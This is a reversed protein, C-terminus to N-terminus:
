GADDREPGKGDYCDKCRAARDPLIPFPATPLAQYWYATSCWDDSREYIVGDAGPEAGAAHYSRWESAPVNERLESESGYGIQQISVAVRRQFYIPDRHHLRYIGYFGRKGDSLTVGQCPTQDMSLGWACGIYDETGTGCITPHEGDDDIFFKVEGEGWWGGRDCTRVGLMTGLYVGRGEVGDLITYDTFRPCPNARRWQAHLYGTNQDLTDGQTFDVQYFLMRVQSGSDNSVTIRASERFPMPIWCNFGKGGQACLLDSTLPTGFGHPLGFFDGLPVEISPQEQGDWYIRLVCGRLHEPHGPPITIWIHRIVGPGEVDLLTAEAGDPFPWICPQGKRGENSIGGAGVAASPNEASAARSSLDSLRYIM